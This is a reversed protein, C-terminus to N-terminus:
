EKLKGMLVLNAKNIYDPVAFFVENRFIVPSNVVSAFNNDFTKMYVLDTGNYHALGNIMRVFLDKESRGYIQYGFNPDSFSLRKEFVGNVYRYIDRGITFYVEDGVINLSGTYIEETSRSYITILNNGNLQYFETTDSVTYGVKIGQIFIKNREKRVRQFQSYTNARYVEKWSFGDYHLIFGRQINQSDYVVVGVAYVDNAKLGWINKVFVSQANAPMYIYNQTWSIGDFHWINGDGGGMWVDNKSFGFLTRGTCRVPEKWQEWKIGDYHSLRDAATGGPGVTWVDNPSSGWIAQVDNMPMKLTDVSWIYDRRGPQLNDEPNVPNDKCSYLITATIFAIFLLKTTKM